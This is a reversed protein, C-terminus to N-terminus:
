QINDPRPLSIDGVAVVPQQSHEIARVVGAVIEEHTLWRPGQSTKQYGLIVRQVLCTPPLPIHSVTDRKASSIIDILRWSDHRYATIEEAIALLVPDKPEHIWSVVLDIPGQMLQIHEIWKHVKANDHYDLVLPTVYHSRNAVQNMVRFLKNSSRGIVSVWYEHEVLWPTLSALMGTGGVVLAQKM